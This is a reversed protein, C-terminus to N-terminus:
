LEGRRWQYYRFIFQGISLGFGEAFAEALDRAQKYSTNSGFLKKLSENVNGGNKDLLAQVRKKAETSWILSSGHDPEIPGADDYDDPM